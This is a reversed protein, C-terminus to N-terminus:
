SAISFKNKDNKEGKWLVFKLKIKQFAGMIIDNGKYHSLCWRKILLKGIGGLFCTTTCRNLEAQRFYDLYYSIIGGGM